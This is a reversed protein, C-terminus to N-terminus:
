NELNLCESLEQESLNSVEGIAAQPVEKEVSYPWNNSWFEKHPGYNYALDLILAVPVLASSQEM